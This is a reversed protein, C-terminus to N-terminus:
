IKNNLWAYQNGCPKPETQQPGKDSEGEQDRDADGINYYHPAEIECLCKDLGEDLLERVSIVEGKVSDTWPLRNLPLHWIPM